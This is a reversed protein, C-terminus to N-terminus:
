NRRSFLSIFGFLGFKLSKFKTKQTSILFPSTFHFASHTIVANILRGVLSSLYICNQNMLNRFARNTAQIFAPIKTKALRWGAISIMGCILWFEFSFNFEAIWSFNSNLILQQFQNWAPIAPPLYLLGVLDFWGDFNMLQFQPNFGKM